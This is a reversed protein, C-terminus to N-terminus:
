EGLHTRKNAFSASLAERLESDTGPLLIRDLDYRRLHGDTFAIVLEVMGSSSILFGRVVGAGKGDRMRTEITRNDDIFVVRDFLCSLDGTCTNTTPAHTAFESM